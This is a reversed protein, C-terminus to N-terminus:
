EQLTNLYPKTNFSFSAQQFKLLLFILVFLLFSFPLILQRIHSLIVILTLIFSHLTWKSMQYIKSMQLLFVALFQYIVILLLHLPYLKFERSSPLLNKMAEKQPLIPDGQYLIQRHQNVSPAQLKFFLCPKFISPKLRIMPLISLRHKGFKLLTAKCVKRQM